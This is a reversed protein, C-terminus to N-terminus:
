GTCDILFNTNINDMDSIIEIWKMNREDFKYFTEEKKKQNIDNLIIEGGFIYLEEKFIFCIHRFHPVIKGNLKLIRWRNEGFDKSM